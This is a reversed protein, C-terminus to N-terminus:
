LHDNNQGLKLPQLSIGKLVTSYYLLFVRLINESGSFQSNISFQKGFRLLFVIKAHSYLSHLIYGIVLDDTNQM